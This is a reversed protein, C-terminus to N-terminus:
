NESGSLPFRRDQHLYQRLIDPVNADTWIMISCDDDASRFFETVEQLGSVSDRGVKMESQRKHPTSLARLLAADRRAAVEADTLGEDAFKGKM